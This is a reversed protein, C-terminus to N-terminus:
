EQTVRTQDLEARLAENEAGLHRIQSYLDAILALIPDTMM